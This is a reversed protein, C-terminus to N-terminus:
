KAVFSRELTRSLREGLAFFALVTRGGEDPPGVQGRLFLLLLFIFSVDV